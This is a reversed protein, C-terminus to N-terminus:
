KVERYVRSILNILSCENNIASKAERLRWSAENADKLFAARDLDRLFTLHVFVMTDTADIKEWSDYCPPLPTKNLTRNLMQLKEVYPGMQEPPVARALESTDAFEDLLSKIKIVDEKWENIAALRKEELQSNRWYKYGGISGGCVLAFVVIRIVRTMSFEEPATIEHHQEIFPYGHGFIRPESSEGTYLTSASAM